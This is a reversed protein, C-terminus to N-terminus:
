APRWEPVGDAALTALGPRGIPTQDPRTLLAIAEATPVRALGRRGDALRLITVGHEPAGERDYLVTFTEVTAPGEAAETFAPVAGRRSDAEAQVSYSEALAARAPRRALVVAHHKTVFEGQGYLLAAEGPRARLARLMAAAAHTMYNNLPAGFFTLGGTTTPAMGSPLGLRRAAMKPVCPFCSYLECISFGAGEAEAIRACGDLVANQAHAEHYHDRNLYDRPEVAAAGGWLFVMREEPVGAARARALSTLLLAGGQNVMPNAVQLKTYPYAIPRNSASPTGIEAPSYERKLWAAPNRAAVGSFASWLAASEAQGEAPSQGLHAEVANEYFPYVTVPDAVGLRVALPHLYDRGRTRRWNPDPETWPLAIGAKRAQAVAHTAEGGVVASVESEGRAIRLAAEHLFRVPSEGGVPGYVLRRPAQGLRAALAAPLDAYPWSVSNVIDLSDLAALLDPAGADTAARRLAEAMLAAPELALRPEAPRDVVEGAGILVPIRADDM